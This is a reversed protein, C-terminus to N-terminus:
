PPTAVGESAAPTPAKRHRTSAMATYRMHCALGTPLMMRSARRSLTVPIKLAAALLNAIKTVQRYAHMQSVDKKVQSRFIQYESWAKFIDVVNERILVERKDDAWAYFRHLVELNSIILAKSRGKKILTDIAEHFACVLLLRDKEPPDLEIQHIMDMAEKRPLSAAGQYLLIQLDWPIQHTGFSLDPFTLDLEDM